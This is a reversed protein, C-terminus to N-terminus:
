INHIVTCLLIDSCKQSMKFIPVTPNTLFVTSFPMDKRALVFNTNHFPKVEEYKVIVRLRFYWLVM